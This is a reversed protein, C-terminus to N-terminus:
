EDDEDWYEDDYAEELERERKERDREKLYEKQEENREHLEELVEQNYQHREKQEPTLDDYHKSEERLQEKAIREARVSNRHAVDQLTGLLSELFGM